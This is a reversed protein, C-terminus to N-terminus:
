KEEEDDEYRQDRPLLVSIDNFSYSKVNAFIAPNIDELPAIALLQDDFKFSGSFYEIKDAGPNVFIEGAKIAAIIEVAPADVRLGGGSGIAGDPASIVVTGTGKVAPLNTSGSQSVSGQSVSIDVSGGNAGDQASISGAGLEVNGQNVLTIDGQGTSVGDVTVNGKNSVAVDGSNTSININGVETELADQNGFGTNASSQLGGATVNTAGGNGDSIGGTGANITVLGSSVVEAVVVSDAAVINVDGGNAVIRTSDGMNVDGAGANINVSGGNAVIRADDDLNVEGNGASVLVAGNSTTISGNQNVSGNGSSVSVGNGGTVQDTLTLNNTSRIVVAGSANIDLLELANQDVLTLNVANTVRVKNFDNTAFDFIVDGQADISTLGSVVVPGDGEIGRQTRLILEEANVEMLTLTTANHLEVRQGTLAVDDRLQNAGTLTIDGNNASVRFVDASYLPASNNLDGNLLLLDFVGNANFEALNLGNQEQLYIDGVSNLVQLNDVSTRLRASALGVDRVSDLVLRPTSISANAPDNATVTGNALTLTSAVQLNAAIDIIDNIGTRVAIDRKNRYEIADGGNVQFQGNGLAFTEALSSGRIELTEALSQDLLTEVEQHSVKYHEGTFGYDFEGGNAAATYTMVGDAEGGRLLLTDTGAGGIVRTGTNSGALDINFTDNGAGGNLVGLVVGSTQNFTDNGAGGTLLNFDLFSITQDGFAVEGDNVGDALGGFNGIRWIAGGDPGILEATHLSDPGANNGRIGEIGTIVGNQGSLAEAVNIRLNGNVQSYDVLDATVAGGGDLSLLPTAVTVQFIDDHAGGRIASLNEFALLRNDDDVLTSTVRGSRAGDITWTYSRDSAGYLWTRDNGILEDMNTLNLRAVGTPLAVGAATAVHVDNALGQLDVANRGASGDLSGSLAGGQAFVFRDDGAGAVLNGFGDFAVNIADEGTTLLYRVSGANAGDVTWTSEADAGILTSLANLSTFREIGEVLLGAALGRALDVSIPADYRFNVADSGEGGNIRSIDTLEAYIDFIDNGVGGILGAINSFSAVGTVSHGNVEGLRWNTTQEVAVVLENNGLGGDIAGAISGGAHLEFRDAASGGILYAINTFINGGANSGNSVRGSNAGDLLWQNVLGQASLDLTNAGAGEGGDILTTIAAMDNAFIFIDEGTGGRLSHVGSFEYVGANEGERIELRGQNAGTIYWFNTGDGGFYV